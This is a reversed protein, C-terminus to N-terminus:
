NFLQRDRHFIRAIIIRVSIQDRHESRADSHSPRDPAAPPPVSVGFDGARAVWHHTQRSRVAPKPPVFRSVRREVVELVANKPDYIPNITPIAPKAPKWPMPPRRRITRPFRRWHRPKCTEHLASSTQYSYIPRVPLTLVGEFPWRGRGGAACSCNALRKSPSTFPFALSILFSRCFAHPSSPADVLSQTM